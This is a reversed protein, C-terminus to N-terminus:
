RMGTMNFIFNMLCALFVSVSLHMRSFSYHTKLKDRMLRFLKFIVCFLSYISAIVFTAIIILIIKKSVFAGIGALLKIDGAGVVKLLFLFYLMVIPIMAGFLSMKLGNLGYFLLNFLMGSVVGVICLRNPIKFTRLDCVM